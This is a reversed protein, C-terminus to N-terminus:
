LAYFPGTSSLYKFVTHLFPGFAYRLLTEGYMLCRTMVLLLRKKLILYIETLMNLAKGKEM